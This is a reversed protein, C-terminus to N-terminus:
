ERYFNRIHFEQCKSRVWDILRGILEQLMFYNIRTQKGPQLLLITYSCKNLIFFSNIGEMISTSIHFENPCIIWFMSLKKYSICDFPVFGFCVHVMATLRVILHKMNTKTGVTLIDIYMLLTRYVTDIGNRKLIM